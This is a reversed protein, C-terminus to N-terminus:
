SVKKMEELLASAELFQEDDGQAMISRLVLEASPLDGMDRYMRALDLKAPIAEVSGIYDYEGEQNVSVLPVVMQQAPITLDKIGDTATHAGSTTSHPDAHSRDSSPKWKPVEVQKSSRGWFFWVLILLGLIFLGSVLKLDFFAAKLKDSVSITEVPRQAPPHAPALAPKVPVATVITEPEAKPMPQIPAPPTQVVRPNPAAQNEKLNAGVGAMVSEFQDKLKMLKEHLDKNETKLSKMQEDMMDQYQKASEVTTLIRRRMEEQSEVTERELEGPDKPTAHVNMVMGALLFSIGWLFRFTFAIFRM